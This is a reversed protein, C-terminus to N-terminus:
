RAESRIERYVEVIARALARSSYRGVVTRRGESGMREALGPDELLSAVADALGAEDGPPVLLGTRGHSIVESPGGQDFAVVPKALAMAELLVRGLGEKDSPLVLVDVSRLFSAADETYGVFRLRGGLDLREVEAQLTQLYRTGDQTFPIGAILIEADPVRRLLSPAARVLHIIGKEESIRGLYAVRRGRVPTGQTFVDVDVSDPILRMRSSGAGRYKARVAQSIVIVRRSALAVLLGLPMHGFLTRDHFVMPKRALAASIGAVLGAKFTNAHIIDARLRRAKVALWVCGRLADWVGALRAGPRRGGGRDLHASTFPLEMREIGSAGAWRGLDSSAPVALIPVVESPDLFKLIEILANQGGALRTVTDVYLVRLPRRSVKIPQEM